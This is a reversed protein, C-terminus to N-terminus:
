KRPFQGLFVNSLLYVRIRHVTRFQFSCIGFTLQWSNDGEGCLLERVWQEEQVWQKRGSTRSTPQQQFRRGLAPGTIGSVPGAKVQLKALRMGLAMTKPKSERAQGEMESWGLLWFSCPVHGQSVAQLKPSPVAWATLAAKGQPLLAGWKPTCCASAHCSLQLWTSTMIRSWNLNYRLSFHSGHHNKFSSYVRSLGIVNECNNSDIELSRFFGICKSNQIKLKFYVWFILM